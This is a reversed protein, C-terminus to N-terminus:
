INIQSNETQLQNGCCPVSCSPHVPWESVSEALGLGLNEKGSVSFVTKFAVSFVKFIAESFSKRECLDYSRNTFGEVSAKYNGLVSSIRTYGDKTPM